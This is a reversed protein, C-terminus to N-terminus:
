NAANSLRLNRLRLATKKINIRIFFCALRSFERADFFPGIL